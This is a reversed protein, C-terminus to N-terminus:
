PTQCFRNLEEVLPDEKKVIEEMRGQLKTTKEVDVQEVADALERAATALDKTLEQHRQGLKQLDPVTLAVKETQKTIADMETALARLESVSKGAEPTAGMAKHIRDVGENVATVFAQCEEIKKKPGCGALLSLAALAGLTYRTLGSRRTAM